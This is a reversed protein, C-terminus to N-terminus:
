ICFAAQMEALKKTRGSGRGVENNNIFAAVTFSKNHEPGEESIVRYELLAAGDQEALQQLRTKFDSGADFVNVINPHTLQHTLKAERIFRKTFVPDEAAVSSQMLKLACPKKLLLHEALYVEAMGGKGLLRIIKYKDFFEGDQLIRENANSLRSGGLTYTSADEDLFPLEPKLVTQCHPCLTDDNYLLELPVMVKTRCQHCLIIASFDQYPGTQGCEPCTLNEPFTKDTQEYNFRKSCFPCDLVQSFM